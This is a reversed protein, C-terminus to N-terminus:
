LLDLEALFAAHRHDTVADATVRADDVFGAGAGDGGTHREVRDAHRWQAHRQPAIARVDVTEYARQVLREDLLMEEIARVGGSATSPLSTGCTPRSPRASRQRLSGPRGRIQACRPAEACLGSFVSSANSSARLAPASPM